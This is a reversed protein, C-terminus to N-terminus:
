RQGPLDPLPFPLAELLAPAPPRLPFRQWYRTPNAEFLLRAAGRPDREFLDRILAEDEYPSSPATVEVAPALGVGGLPLGLGDDFDGSTELRSALDTRERGRSEVAAVLKSVNTRKGRLEAAEAELASIESRLQMARRTAASRADSSSGGLANRLEVDYQARKESLDVQIGDFRQDLAGIKGNYFDIAESEAKRVKEGGLLLNMRMEHIRTQLEQARQSTGEPEVEQRAAPALSLLLTSLLATHTM